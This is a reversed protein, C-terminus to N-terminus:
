FKDIDRIRTTFVYKNLGDVNGYLNWGYFVELKKNELPWVGFPFYERYLWYGDDRLTYGLKPDGVSPDYETGIIEYNFRNGGNRWLWNIKNWDSCPDSDLEIHESQWGYDGCLDNDKTELWQFPTVLHKGDDSQFFTVAVPSLPYKAVSMTLHIPLLIIWLGTYLIGEFM